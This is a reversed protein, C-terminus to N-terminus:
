RIAARTDGPLMLERHAAVPAIGNSMVREHFARVNRISARLAELVNKDVQAASQRLSKEDVHLEDAKLRVNDFRATYDLLAADGRRRVESIIDEVVSMLEADFSVNREKIRAIKECRRVAETSRIIEIM